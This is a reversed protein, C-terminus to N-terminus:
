NRSSGKSWIVSKTYSVTMLDQTSEDVVPLSSQNLEAEEYLRSLPTQIMDRIQWYITQVIGGILANAQGYESAQGATLIIRVPNGLADVAAHIKTRLGGRSQGVAQDHQSTKKPSRASPSPNYQWRGDSDKDKSLESFIHVRTAGVTIDCM